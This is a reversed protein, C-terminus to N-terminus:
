SPGDARRRAADAARRAVRGAERLPATLRWSTSAAVRALAAQEAALSESRRALEAELARSRTRESQLAAEANRLAADLPAAPQRALALAEAMSRAEPSGTDVFVVPWEDVEVGRSRVYKVWASFLRESLFSVDRDQYAGARSADARACWEQLVPFWTECLRDFLSWTTVFMNYCHLRSSTFDELMFPLLEPRLESLVDLLLLYDNTNHYRCYSEFVSEGLDAPMAVIMAGGAVRAIQGAPSFAARATPIDSRPITRLREEQVRPGFDFFRRYHCFGVVDTVPGEKWVSYVASLESWRRDPLHAAAVLPRPELPPLPASAAAGTCVYGIPAIDDMLSPDHVVAHVAWSPPEQPGPPPPPLPAGQAPARRRSKDVTFLYSYYRDWPSEGLPPEIVTKAAHEANWDAAAPLAADLLLGGFHQMRSENGVVEVAFGSATLAELLPGVGPLGNELHETLWTPPPVGLSDLLAAFAAEGEEAARGCPCTVLVKERAVRVLEALAPARDGEPLHELVDACVVYDFSGDDFPLSLVDGRVLEVLPERPEVADRELGTVPRQLWLAIGWPGCGVELVSRHVDFLGRERALLKAYRDHWNIM